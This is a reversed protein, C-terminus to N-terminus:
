GQDKDEDANTSFKADSGSRYSTALNSTCIYARQIGKDSADFNMANDQVNSLGLNEATAFSDQNAGLFIFKWNFENEQTQIVKKIEDSRFNHSSNEQGDTMIVVLVKDPRDDEKISKLTEGLASVSYGIADLLATIGNPKYSKPTLPKVNEMDIREIVTSHRENFVVLTFKCEGEVSQQEKIFGNISKITSERLGDMSSSKDLIMLIETANKM